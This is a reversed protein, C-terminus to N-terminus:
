PSKLVRFIQRQWESSPYTKINDYNYLYIVGFDFNMIKWQLINNQSITDNNKVGNFRQKHTCSIQCAYKYHLRINIYFCDYIAEASCQYTYKRYTYSYVYM